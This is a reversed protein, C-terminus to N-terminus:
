GVEASLPLVPAQESILMELLKREADLEILRREIGLTQERLAQYQQAHTTIEAKKADLREHLTM